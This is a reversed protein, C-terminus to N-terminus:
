VLEKIQTELLYVLGDDMYNYIDPVNWVLSKEELDDQFETEQFTKKSQLWNEGNM